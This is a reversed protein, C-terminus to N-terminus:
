TRSKTVGHVIYNMSKELGSYQLPYAMGKKLPDEWGLSRVWTEQMAPPNKVLQAVLSAWWGGDLIIEMKYIFSNLSLSILHSVWVQIHSIQSMNSVSGTVPGRLVTPAPPGPSCFWISPTSQPPRQTPTIPSLTSWFLM